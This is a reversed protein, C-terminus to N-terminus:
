DKSLIAEIVEPHQCRALIRSDWNAQDTIQTYASWVIEQEEASRPSMCINALAQDRQMPQSIKKANEFASSMEHRKMYFRSLAYYAISQLKEFQSLSDAFYLIMEVNQYALDEFTQCLVAESVAALNIKSAEDVKHENLLHFLSIFLQLAKIIEENQCKEIVQKAWKMKDTILEYASWVIQSNQVNQASIAHDSKKEDPFLSIGTQAMCIYALAEDRMEADGIKKAEEFAESIRQLKVLVKCYICPDDCMQQLLDEWVERETEEPVNDLAMLVKKLVEVNQCERILQARWCDKDEILEYALGVIHMNEADRRPDAYFSPFYPLGNRVTCLHAFAQDRLDSQVIKKAIEFGQPVCQGQVMEKSLVCYALSHRRDDVQLQDALNQATQWNKKALYEFMKVFINESLQKMFIIGLADEMRNSNLLHYFFELIKQEKIRPDSISGIVKGVLEGHNSNDMRQLIRSLAHDRKKPDNMKKAKEFAEEPLKMLSETQLSKLDDLATTKREDEDMCKAIKEAIDIYGAKRLLDFQDKPLLWCFLYHVIENIEFNRDQSEDGKEKEEDRTIKLYVKFLIHRQLDVSPTDCAIEIAVAPGWKDVILISFEEILEKSSQFEGSIKAFIAMADSISGNKALHCCIYALAQDRTNPDEIKEAVRTAKAYFQNETLKKCINLFFGERKQEEFSRAENLSQLLLSLRFIPAIPSTPLLFSALREIEDKNLRKIRKALRLEKRCSIKKLEELTLANSFEFNIAVKLADLSSILRVKIEWETLANEAQSFCDLLATMKKQLDEQDKSLKRGKREIKDRKKRLNSNLNECTNNAVFHIIQNFINQAKLLIAREEKQLSFGFKESMNAKIQLLSSVTKGKSQDTVAIRVQDITWLFQSINKSERKKELTFAWNESSAETKLAELEPRPLSRPKKTPPQKEKEETSNQNLLAHYRKCPAMENM